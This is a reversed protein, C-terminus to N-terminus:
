QQKRKTKVFVLLLFVILGMILIIAGTIKTINLVYAQGVPDYSYCYQLIKNITPGTQGKSAEMIALKFEFPLFYTGNLYRTIKGDPSTVIVTAAHTYENGVKKYRFGFAKTAKAINLSDGTYFKWGEQTNKGKILSKYNNKKKVALDYTEKPDFSITIVQYDKAIELDSKQIVDALGDMLPSCIGPCRFYVFVIATPKDIQDKLFILEGAENTLQIDQPITDNLNEIVGVEMDYYLDKVDQGFSLSTILILLFSVTLKLKM